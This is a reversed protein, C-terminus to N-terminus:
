YSFMGTSERLFRNGACRASESPDTLLVHSVFLLFRISGGIHCSFLFVGPSFHGALDGGFSGWIGGFCYCGFCRGCDFVCRGLFGGCFNRFCDGFSLGCRLDGLGGGLSLGDGLGSDFSLGDGLGSDFSLGDGLGSGFSLGDGLGSDFSLGDGLGSDFSLGDGLGSGFSLG